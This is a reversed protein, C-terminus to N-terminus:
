NCLDSEKTSEKIQTYFLAEQKHHDAAEIIAIKEFLDTKGDNLRSPSPKLDDM